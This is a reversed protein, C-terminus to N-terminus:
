EKRGCVLTAGCRSSTAAGCSSRRAATLPRSGAPCSLETAEPAEPECPTGSSDECTVEESEPEVATPCRPATGDAPSTPVSGDPCTPESGDACSLSGQRASSPAAGNECSASATAPIGAPVATAGPAHTKVSGRVGRHGKRPRHGKRAHTSGPCAHAGHRHHVTARCAPKRGQATVPLVLLTAAAALALLTAPLTRLRRHALSM